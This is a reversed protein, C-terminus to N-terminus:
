PSRDRFQKVLDAPYQKLEPQWAAKGPNYNWGVDPAVYKGPAYEFRTVDVKPADPRQSVPREIMSLRGRSSSLDIGRDAVNRDDLARVRCRCNFGNPPYFSDWFPDDARFVLGNMAAHTPRTRRDMVATYQWYPRAAVNDSFTKYRGASYATQLNTQYITKLRWPTLGKGAMEGTAEDTQANRGWWGRRQLLPILGKEFDAYTEGKALAQDVAQRIDVLVDMKMVGAVTFAKAQAQQWVEQWSWAIAYGKAQFYEIAKEPPLQLAYLLDIDNAPTAM